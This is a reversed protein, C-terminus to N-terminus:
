SVFLVVRLLTAYKHCVKMAMLEQMLVANELDLRCAENQRPPDHIPADMHLSELEMVTSKISAREAKLQHIYERLKQEEAKSFDESYCGSSSTSSICLSESSHPFKM